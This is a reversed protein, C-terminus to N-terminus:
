KSEKAEQQFAAVDDAAKAAIKSEDKYVTNRHAVRLVLVTVEGKDLHCIVRHDRVRYRWYTALKGTLPKGATTPADLAAIKGDLYDLIERAVAKDLKKLKKLAIDSYNIAWAM